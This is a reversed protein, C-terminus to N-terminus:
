CCKHGASLCIIRHLQLNHTIAMGLEVILLVHLRIFSLATACQPYNGQENKVNLLVQLRRFALYPQHPGTTKFTVALM